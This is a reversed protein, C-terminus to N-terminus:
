SSSDSTPHRTEPVSEDPPIRLVIVPCPARRLVGEAVSGLEDVPDGVRLIRRCALAPDAPRAQELRERRLSDNITQIQANMEGGGYIMTVPEVHALLLEADWIRALAAAYDITKQTFASFDVPVLIKEVHIM